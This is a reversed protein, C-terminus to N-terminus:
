SFTNSRWIILTHLLHCPNSATFCMSVAKIVKRPTLDSKLLGGPHTESLVFTAFKWAKRPIRSFGFPLLRSCFRTLLLLQGICHYLLFRKSQLKAPLIKFSESIVSFFIFLVIGYLMIGCMCNSYVVTKLGNFELLSKLRESNCYPSAHRNGNFM